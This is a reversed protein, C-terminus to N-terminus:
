FYICLVNNPSFDLELEDDDPLSALPAYSMSFPMFTLTVLPHTGYLKGAGHRFKTSSRECIHIISSNTQVSIDVYEIGSEIRVFNRFSIVHAFM